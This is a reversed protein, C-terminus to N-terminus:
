LKLYRGSNWLCEHGPHPLPMRHSQPDRSGPEVGPGPGRVADFHVSDLIDCGPICISPNDKSNFPDRVDRVSIKATVPDRLAPMACEHKATM